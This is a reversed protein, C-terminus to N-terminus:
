PHHCLHSFERWWSWRASWISVFWESGSIMFYSLRLNLLVSGEAEWLRGGALASGKSLWEWCSEHNNSDGAKKSNEWHTLHGEQSCAFERFLHQMPLRTLLLPASRSSRTGVPSYGLIISFVDLSRRGRTNADKNIVTIDTYLYYSERKIDKEQRIWEMICRWHHKVWQWPSQLVLTEYVNSQSMQIFWAPPPPHALGALSSCRLWGQGRDGSSSFSCLSSTVNMLLLFLAFRNPIIPFCHTHPALRSPFVRDPTYTLSLTPLDTLLCPSFVRFM